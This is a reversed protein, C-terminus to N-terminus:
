VNACRQVSTPHSKAAGSQNASGTAQRDGSSYTSTRGGRLGCRRDSSDRYTGELFSITIDQRLEQDSVLSMAVARPIGVVFASAWGAVLMSPMTRPLSDVGEPNM